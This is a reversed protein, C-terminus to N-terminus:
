RSGPSFPKSLFQIGDDLVGHYEVSNGTYGSVFLVREVRGRERLADVLQRGSMKPMVVDTVV